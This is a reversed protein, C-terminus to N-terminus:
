DESLRRQHRGTVHHDPSVYVVANPRTWAAEATHQASPISTIDDTDVQGDHATAAPQRPSARQVVVTRVTPFPRARAHLRMGSTSEVAPNTAAKPVSVAKETTDVQHPIVIAPAPAEAEIRLPQAQVSVPAATGAQQPATAESSTVPAITSIPASVGDTGGATARAPLNEDAALYWTAAGLVMSAALGGTVGRFTIARRRKRNQLRRATEHKAVADARIANVARTVDYNPGYPPPLPLASFLQPFTTDSM